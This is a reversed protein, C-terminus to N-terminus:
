ITDSVEVLLKNSTLETQAKQETILLNLQIGIKYSLSGVQSRLLYSNQQWQDGKSLKIIYQLKKSM